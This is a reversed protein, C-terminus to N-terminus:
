PKGPSDAGPSSPAQGPIELKRYGVPVQFVSEPVSSQGVKTIEVLSRGVFEGDAYIEVIRKLPLGKLKKYDLLEDLEDIGSAQQTLMNLFPATNPISPATWFEEIAVFSSAQGSEHDSFSIKIKYHRTPYGAITGGDEDVALEELKPSEISVQDKAAKGKLLRKYGDRSFQFYAQKQDVVATLNEGSDTAIITFGAPMSADESNEVVFKAKTDTAWVHFSSEKGFKDMHASYILQASAPLTYLLALGLLTLPRVTNRVAPAM